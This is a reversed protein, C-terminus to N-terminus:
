EIGRTSLLSINEFIVHKQGEAINNDFAFLQGRFRFNSNGLAKFILKYTHPQGDKIYDLERIYHRKGTDISDPNCSYATVHPKLSQDDPFLIATFQLTYIGIRNVIVDFHASDDGSPDPFMYFNKGPWLDGEQIESLMSEKELITEMKSLKGLVQDYIKILKKPKKIFYYKMTKDMEEKTYGYKEIIKFYTSTSDSSLYWRRIKQNTLLGDALHIDTLISVLDKDPIMNKHDLKNRRSTCSNVLVSFVILILLTFRTM